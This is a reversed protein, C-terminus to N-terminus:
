MNLSKVWEATKLISEKFDCKAEFGLENFAAELNIKSYDIFSDDMYEGFTLETASALIDRVSIVIDRFKRLSRNGIYYHHLHLGYEGVAYLGSVADDIYLWDHKNEGEILRPKNGSLFDRILTNTSRSSFDGVGFVNTFSATSFKISGTTTVIAECMTRAATKAAGYLTRKRNIKGMKDKTSLYEHSSGIFVFKKCGTAAAVHLADCTAKINKIQTEYDNYESGSVGAWALHYFVDANYPIRQLLNLYEGFDSSIVRVKRSEEVVKKLKGDKTIATVFIDKNVLEAILAKGIFGDAGTVIAQKM